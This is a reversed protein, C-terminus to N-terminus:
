KDGYKRGASVPSQSFDGRHYAAISAYGNRQAYELLRRRSVIAVLVGAFMLAFMGMLIMVAVGLAM